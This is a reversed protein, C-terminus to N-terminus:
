YSGSTVRSMEDRVIRRVRDDQADLEDRVIERVEAATLPQAQEGSAALGRRVIETLSLDSAKWQAHLEAGLWVSTKTGPM